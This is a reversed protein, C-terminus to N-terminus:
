EPYEGTRKAECPHPICCMDIRTIKDGMVHAFVTAILNEKKGEATAVCENHGWTPMIAIEAYVRNGSQKIAALEPTIYDLYEQRSSLENVMWQSSYCFKDDLLPEFQSVDLTNMMRAYARLAEIETLKM